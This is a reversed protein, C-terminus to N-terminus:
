AIGNTSSRTLFQIGMRVFRNFYDPDSFGTATDKEILFLEVKRVLHEPGLTLLFVEKM